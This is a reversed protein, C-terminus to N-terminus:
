LFTRGLKSKFSRKLSQKRRISRVERVYRGMQSLHNTLNAHVPQIVEGRVSLPQLRRRISRM